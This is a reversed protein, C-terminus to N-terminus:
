VTMTITYFTHHQPAGPPASNNNKIIIDKPNQIRQMGLADGALKGPTAFQHGGFVEITPEGGLCAHPVVQSTTHTHTYYNRKKAV